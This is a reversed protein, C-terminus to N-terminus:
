GDSNFVGIWDGPRVHGVKIDLLDIPERALEAAALRTALPPEDAFLERTRLPIKLPQLVAHALELLLISRDDEWNLGMASNLRRCSQLPLNYGGSDLQLNHPTEGGLAVGVDLGHPAADLFHLALERLHLVSLHHVACVTP